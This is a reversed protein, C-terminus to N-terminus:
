CWSAAKLYLNRKAGRNFSLTTSYDASFRRRMLAGRRQKAAAKETCKCACTCKWKCECTCADTCTCTCTCTHVHAHLRGSHEPCRPTLTGRAAGRVAGREAVRVAGGAAGRCPAFAPGCVWPTVSLRVASSRGVCVSVAASPRPTSDLFSYLAGM